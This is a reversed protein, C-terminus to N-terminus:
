KLEPMRHTAPFGTFLKRRSQDLADRHRRCAAAEADKADQEAQAERARVQRYIPTGEAADGLADLNEAIFDCAMAMAQQADTM